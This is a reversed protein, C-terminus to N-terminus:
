SPPACSTPNDGHPRAESPQRKSPPLIWTFDLRKFTFCDSSEAIGVVAIEAKNSAGEGGCGQYKFQPFTIRTGSATVTLTGSTRGGCYTDEYYAEGGSVLSARDVGVCGTTSSGGTYKFSFVVEYDSCSAAHAAYPAKFMLTGFTLVVLSILRAISM